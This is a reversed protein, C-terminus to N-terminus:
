ENITQTIRRFITAADLGNEKRIQPLTGYGVSFTDNLGIRLTRVSVNAEALADAIM